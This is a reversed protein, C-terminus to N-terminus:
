EGKIKQKSDIPEKLLEANDLMQEYLKFAKAEYDAISEEITEKISELKKKLEDLEKLAKEKEEKITNLERLENEKELKIEELDKSKDLIEKEESSIGYRGVTFIKSIKIGRPLINGGVRRFGPHKKGVIWDILNGDKSDPIEVENDGIYVDFFQGGTTPAKPNEVLYYNYGYKLIIEDFKKQFANIEAVLYYTRPLKALKNILLKDADKKDPYIRSTLNKIEEKVVVDEIKYGKLLLESIPKIDDSKISNDNPYITANGCLYSTLTSITLDQPLQGIRRADNIYDMMEIHDNRYIFLKREEKATIEKAIYEISEDQILAGLIELPMKSDDTTKECLKYVLDELKSFSVEKLYLETIDKIENTKFSIKFSNDNAARLIRRNLDGVGVKIKSLDNITFAKKIKNMVENHAELNEKKIINNAKEDRTRIEELINKMKISELLKILDNKFSDRKEAYYYDYISSINFKDKTSVIEVEWMDVGNILPTPLNKEIIDIIKEIVCNDLIRGTNLFENIVPKYLTQSLKENNVKINAALFSAINAYSVNPLEKLSEAKAIEDLVKIHRKDERSINEVNKM